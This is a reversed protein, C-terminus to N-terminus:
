KGLKQISQQTKSNEFNREFVNKDEDNNENNEVNKRRQQSRHRNFHSGLSSFLQQLPRRRTGGSSEEKLSGDRSKSIKDKSEAVQIQDVKVTNQQPSSRTGRDLDDRKAWESDESRIANSASDAEAYVSELIADSVVNSSPSEELAVLKQPVIVSRETSTRVFPLLPLNPIVLGDPNVGELVARAPVTM